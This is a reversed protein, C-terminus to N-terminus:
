RPRRVSTSSLRSATTVRALDRHRDRDRRRLGLNISAGALAAIAVLGLIYPSTPRHDDAAYAAFASQQEPAVEEERKEETVRVVAGGPPIPRAFAGAPPPPTVPVRSTQAAFPSPFDTPIAPVAPPAPLPPTPPRPAPPPQQAAPPPPPPPAPTPTPAPSAGAPAAAPPSAPAAPVPAQTFRSPDLPRTGCPQQVSGALVRVRTQYSLGGASVTVTSEGANFPCVLGSAADAVVKGDQGQFPKRLNTSAPDQRVFDLIDPDSSTFRYETTLRSGCNAQLCQAPPFSTYPDAGSPNPSGDSGSVPGWRDGARPKRGLGQFLAPRSRRLLTGDVASLSLDEVLPIVRATVPAVNTAPDRRSTDVSVLLFATDGFLADPQEDATTQTLPSRYGLTGTGYQPITRSGGAPIQSVRQEEPREYLYASAGEDVLLQAVRDADGAVNVRPTLRPNLDRSGVVVAPVGAAKAARLQERLWPEQPEAPVQHPDSAELSGRSNDIVIVRVRGAPGDTDVAFHTRAGSAEGQPAPLGAFAASFAASTGGATDAGSAAAYTPIGGNDAGLLGALRDLETRPMPDTRRNPLRGGTYLLARPAGARGALGGLKARLAALNRDPAIQEEVLGACPQECAAHGAVAFTALAPDLDVPAATQAPPGAPQGDPAYRYIGSTQVRSRVVSGLGSASTGRGVNDAQGSWGGIAWGAGDAGLVFAAIPDAKVPRDPTASQFGLREEDRWGVETERLVYGDGSLPFPPAVPPPLDPDAPPPTYPPPYQREPVVSVLARVGAATRVAGAAVATQAPLPARTLRWPGGATDRVLVVGRGAVVAGGDPLGAATLLQPAARGTRLLDRVGTDVRWAGGDNVLVDSGATAIAQRGAFAVSTVDASAVDAPLVEPTWTKGYSLITGAQGVAYGRQADSPDFAVGLLNGDFAIPAAPDREWLGTDARWLWMAGIDGVAYARGPEPWAVGRLTPSTVAGTSTLLFERTWGREPLYRAVAGTGGVALAQSTLAGAPKGPEPAAATFPTRVSVPWPALKQPRPLDAIRVPGQLWGRDVATFGGSSRLPPSSGRRRSFRGGDLVAFDGLNQGEEGGVVVANTVVRQGVGAGSFGFSRYGARRGFTFGLPADCLAAGATDEGDCFTTAQGADRRRFITADREGANGVSLRADIWVGDGTATLLQGAPLAGVGTVGRAPTSPAAFLPAGLPAEEWRAGGEGVVRRLLVIGRDPVTQVLMWANDPSTASIALIRRETEGGPPDALPERRWATGDWHAVASEVSPGLIGLFVGTRTPDDYAAVAVRGAGEDVALAEPASGSGPDPRVVDDPAAPLQRFREGPDRVLIRLRAGARQNPDRGVLVGGARPTLRPSAPNIQAYRIPTGDRDVPTQFPVFGDTADTARLILLQPEPSAPTPTGFGLQGNVNPPPPQDAPVESYALTEGPEGQSAGGIIVTERDAGGYSPLVAAGAPAAVLLVAVAAATLTRLPGM